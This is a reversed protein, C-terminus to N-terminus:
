KFDGCALCSGDGGRWCKGAAVCAAASDSCAKFMFGFIGVVGALVLVAILKDTM